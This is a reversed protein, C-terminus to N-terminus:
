ESMASGETNTQLALTSSQKVDEPTEDSSGPGNRSTRESKRQQRKAGVPFRKKSGCLKCEIVLVDAWPKIGGKSRNEIAHTSSRGPILIANCTKCISRKLDASLRVQGKLSVACCHSALQHALGSQDTVNQHEASGQLKEANGPAGTQLALYTAAQYLFTTRAHLHKNSIRKEGKAM